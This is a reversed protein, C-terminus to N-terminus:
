RSSRPGSKGRGETLAREQPWGNNLRWRVSNRSIGLRKAWQGATLSEGNWDIKAESKQRATVGIKEHGRKQNCKACSSVLNELRNDDRIANLHDVHMDSWSVHVGCWNCNFPGEGHADFFVRRHQYVRNGSLRDALWHGPRYELLYGHSHTVVDEPPSVESMLSLHGNRRHRMYHAECLGAGLSRSPLECGDVSCQSAQLKRKKRLEAQGSSRCESGCYIRHTGRAGSIKFQAGCQACTLHIKAM